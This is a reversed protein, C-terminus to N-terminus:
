GDTLESPEKAIFIAVPRLRPWFGLLPGCPSGSQVCFGGHAGCYNIQEKVRGSIDEASERLMQKM